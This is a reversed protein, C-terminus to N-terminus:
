HLQTVLAAISGLAIVASVILSPLHIRRYDRDGRGEDELAKLRQEQNANQAKLEAVTVPLSAVADMQRQLSAFEARTLDRLGRVEALTQAITARNGNDPSDTDAM